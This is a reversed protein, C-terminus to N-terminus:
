TEIIVPDGVAIRGTGEHILNQGFVTKGDRSRYTSLTQLPERGREATAQNITPIVCRACPKAVRFWVTGIRIRKWGDEAYPGSGSMVINPRFRNMEMPAPLRSNLDGLSAESLLLFPFADAFATEEGDTAYRADVGRTSSVSFKVLRCVNGVYDSFWSCAESWGAAARVIDRWITVDLDETAPPNFPITLGSMGPATVVMTETGLFVRILALRAHTRQSIFTGDGDVLM